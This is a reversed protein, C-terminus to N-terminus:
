NALNKEDPHIVFPNPSVRLLLATSLTIPTNEQSSSRPNHTATWLARNKRSTLYLPFDGRPRPHPMIGLSHLVQDVLSSWPFAPLQLVKPLAHTPHTSRQWVKPPHWTNQIEEWAPPSM